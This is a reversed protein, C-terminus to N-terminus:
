ESWYQDSASPMPCSWVAAMMAPFPEGNVDGSVTVSVCPPNACVLTSGV